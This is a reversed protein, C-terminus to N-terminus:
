WRKTVEVGGAPTRDGWLWEVWAGLSWRRPLDARVSAEAGRETAAVRLSDEEQQAVIKGAQTALSERDAM